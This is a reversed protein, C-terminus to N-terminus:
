GEMLKIRLKNAGGAVSKRKDLCLRELQSLLWQKLQVDSFSWDGLTKMTMNLVIWDDQNELNYVLINKAKKLQEPSMDKELSLFLQALTWQASAQHITSIEDLFRNLYPVLLAKNEKCIRKMANSVRLRVVEDKSFYCQFLDEFRATNALVEEVVQVTNGLSNPHGGTLQKEFDNVMM